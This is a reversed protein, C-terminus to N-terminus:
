KQSVKDFAKAYSISGESMAARTQLIEDSTSLGVIQIQAEIKLRRFLSNLEVVIHERLRAQAWKFTIIRYFLGFETWKESTTDRGNWGWKRTIRAQYIDMKRRYEVFDFATKKELLGRGLDAQWFPPATWNFRALNKLLRRYGRYGGVANPMTVLWIKEKPLIVVSKGWKVRDPKPVFQVYVKPLRFLRQPTFLSLGIAPRNNPVNSYIAGAIATTAAYYLGILVGGTAAITALLTSYTDDEITLGSLSYLGEFWPNIIQLCALVGVSIVLQKLTTLVLQLFTGTQVRSEGAYKRASFISRTFLFRYYQIKSRANWFARFSSLKLFLVLAM